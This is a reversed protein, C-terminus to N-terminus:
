TRLTRKVVTKSDTLVVIKKMALGQMRFREDETFCCLDSM